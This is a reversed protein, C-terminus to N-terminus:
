FSLSRCASSRSRWPSTRTPSADVARPALPSKKLSPDSLFVALLAVTSTPLTAEPDANTTCFGLPPLARSSRTPWSAAGRFTVGLRPCRGPEPGVIRRLQAAHRRAIVHPAVGVRVEDKHAAHGVPEVDAPMGEADGAEVASGGVVYTHGVVIHLVPCEGELDRHVRRIGEM